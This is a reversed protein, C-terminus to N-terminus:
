ASFTEAVFRGLNGQLLQEFRYTGDSLNSGSMALNVKRIKPKRAMSDIYTRIKQESKYYYDGPRNLIVVEKCIQMLQDVCQVADDFLVIIEDYGVDDVAMIFHEWEERGVAAAEGFNRMPMVVDIGEYEYTCERIDVNEETLLYIVDLLNHEAECEILSRIISNTEMDIFLVNHNAALLRGYALAFPLQLEHRIPSYIGIWQSQRNTLPQRVKGQKAEPFVTRIFSGMDQFKFVSEYVSGGAEDTSSSLFLIRGLKCKRSNAMQDVENIFEKGLLALNYETTDSLFATTETYMTVAYEPLSRMLYVSLAKSYATDSDCVLLRKAGM